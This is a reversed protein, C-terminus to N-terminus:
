RSSRLVPFFKTDEKALHNAIVDYLVFGVLTRMSTNKLVVQAAIERFEELLQAHLAKHSEVLKPAAAELIAEETRFHVHVEEILGHIREKIAHESTDSTLEDTLRNATSFLARHQQDILTNGSAFSTRWVVDIVGPSKRDRATTAKAARRHSNRLHLVTGGAAVLLLGSLFAMVNQLTLITAVGAACYIYPLLEYLWPPRKALLEDFM